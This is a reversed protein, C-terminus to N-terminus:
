AKDTSLPIVREVNNNTTATVVNEAGIINTQVCEFPNYEAVPVHKLAAAHVVYDIGRFAMELRAADRVDGIFFRLKQAHDEFEHLMDYQKHEDRSLIVVRAPEFHNFVTRVFHRGFSGTGGTVLISKGNLDLGEGFLLNNSSNNM